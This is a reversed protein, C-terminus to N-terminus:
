PRYSTGTAQEYQRVGGYHSIAQHADTQVLQMTGTNTTANYNDVHHWTYGKPTTTYGAAKNAAAFDAKRSGTYQIDVTNKQGTALDQKLYQSTSFDIGRNANRVIGSLDLGRGNGRMAGGSAPALEPENCARQPDVGDNQAARERSAQEIAARADANSQGVKGGPLAEPFTMALGMLIATGVTVRGASVWLARRAIMKAGQ